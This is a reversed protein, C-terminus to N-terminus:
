RRKVTVQFSEIIQCMTMLFIFPALVFGATFSFLICFLSCAFALLLKKFFKAEKAENNWLVVGFYGFVCYFHYIVTWYVKIYNPFETFNQIFHFNVFYITPLAGLFPAFRLFFDVTKKNRDFFAKYEFSKVKEFLYDAVKFVVWTSISLLLFEFIIMAQIALL